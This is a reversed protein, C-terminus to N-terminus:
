DNPFMITRYDNRRGMNYYKLFRYLNHFQLRVLYYVIYPVGNKLNYTSDIFGLNRYFYRDMGKPKVTVKKNYIGPIAVKFTGKFFPHYHIAKTITGIKFGAKLIRLKYEREDGWIFMEKKILGVKDLVDRYCFTGNFPCITGELFEAKDMQEKNYPKRSDNLINKNDRNLLLANSYKVNYKQSYRVLEELQKEDALGDDDMMWLADYQVDDYMYKMGAYFGGAGGVNDQHIVVVDSLSDLYEKTGDTSGNNVVIIDFDKYTQARLSSICEKLLALRNFTVVVAAVKLCKIDNM